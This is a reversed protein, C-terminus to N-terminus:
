FTLTDVKELAEDIKAKCADVVAKGEPTDQTKLRIVRRMVRLYGIISAKTEVEDLYTEDDSKLYLSLIRRFLKYALESSLGLFREVERIDAAGFGKYANFMFALEYIPHGTCLTDMDILLAEDNQLMINKIHLDGHILFGDEPLEDILRRLKEYHEPSFRGDVMDVWHMAEDRQMPLGDPAITSHMQRALEATQSAVYELRSEDARLIEAFSEANLLEFVAGYNDGAKVVDFAIATPIGLLFAMRALERERKIDELCVDDSYVKVITDQNYRYVTGHAGVGIVKCGSLDFSRFAKEVNILETFGTMDLIEYVESSVNTITLEGFSKRLKLLIRLGVSSIYELKEADITISEPKNDAIARNIEGEVKDANASDIHGEFFLTLVSGNNEFRM